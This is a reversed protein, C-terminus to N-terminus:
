LEKILALFKQKSHDPLARYREVLWDIALQELRSETKKMMSTLHKRDAVTLTGPPKEMRSHLRNAEEVTMRAIGKVEKELADIWDQSNQERIKSIEAVFASYIDAPSWPIEAEELSELAAAQSMKAVDEFENWTLQLDSMAAYDRQFMRLANQMEHLDELDQECHEYIALLSELEDKIHDIDEYSSVSSQFIKSLRDKAIKEISSLKDLVTMLNERTKRIDPSQFKDPISKLRDAYAKGADRLSRIEAVKVIHKCDKLPILWRQVDQALQNAEAIAEINKLIQATRANTKEALEDLDLVTFNGAIQKMKSKFEGVAEPTAGKPRVGQLWEDFNQIIFQRAREIDPRMEEIQHDTWLPQELSMSECLKELEAAGWSVFALKGKQYGTEIKELANSQGDSMSELREIAKQAQEELANLKYRLAPSVHIRKKLQSAKEFFHKRDLYSEAEEWENLFEEWESSEKGVLCIADDGLVELDFLKNRFINDGMWQAISFKEEKRIVQLKEIRNAVFVGLLLGASALNAGYPPMCLERLVEAICLQDDPDSLQDQWRSICQGAIPNGPRKAVEGSPTFVRWSDKLVTVARNKIRPPKAIVSNFDLRGSMLELTLQHCDDAANGRLTSFGDFPFPLPSTYIRNFLETGVRDILTAKFEDKLASFLRRQKVLEETKQVVVNRIKERHVEVLHGFRSRDQESLGNTLFDLESLAQGLEGTEDYLFVVLIPLATVQRQRSAERLMKVTEAAVKEMVRNREVYCYIITGRPVDVGLARRWRDIAFQVQTPLSILNSTVGQYSWEKTTIKNEEGFDSSRDGLFPCFELARSAFLKTQELETYKKAINQRIFALFQTKPVAEGLIDFSRFSEDWSIVNFEQELDQLGKQTDIESLGALAALARTAEARDAIQLGLKSAIVVARLISILEESLSSGHRAIVSTYSHTIAGRQGSEEANLLEQQLAESWLLAPSITFFREESLRYKNFREFVEGLIAIASREQLHKGVASLYYLLWTSYPSLPWCGKQIVTHFQDADSWLRHNKTEPFWKRLNGVIDVAHKKGASTDLWRTVYDSDQKEILHAILTELNTSLYSRNATQYRTVYRLIENKYEPAVRQVYANLEFQIFGIFCASGSNAQIGEFLDQLVGSGAIQSRM